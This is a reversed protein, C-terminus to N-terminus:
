YGHAPIVSGSPLSASMLRGGPAPRDSLGRHRAPAFADFLAAGCFGTITAIGGEAATLVMLGYAAAKGDPRTEYAALAPQGNAATARLLIRDLHGDGPILTEGGDAAGGGVAGFAWAFREPRGLRGFWYWRVGGVPGCRGRGYM